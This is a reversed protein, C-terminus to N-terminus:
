NILVKDQELIKRITDENIQNTADFLSAAKGYFGDSIGKSLEEDMKKGLFDQVAKRNRISITMEAKSKDNENGLFSKEIVSMSNFSKGGHAPAVELASMTDKIFSLGKQIEELGSDQSQKMKAIELMLKHNLEVQDQYMQKYNISSESSKELEDSNDVFEKYDLGLIKCSEKLEKLSVQKNKGSM